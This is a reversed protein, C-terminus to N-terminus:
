ERGVKEAEKKEYHCKWCDCYDPLKKHKRYDEVADLVKECFLIIDKIPVIEVEKQFVELTRKDIFVIQLKDTGLAHAYISMQYRYGLDIPKKKAYELYSHSKFDYVTEGDWADAYGEFRIKPTNNDEDEKSAFIDLETRKEFEVPRPLHGIAAETQVYKHIMTGVMFKRLTETDFGKLGLKMITSQRLCGDVMSPSFVNDPKEKKDRRSAQIHADIVGQWNVIKGADTGESM